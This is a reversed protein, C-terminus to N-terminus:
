TLTWHLIDNVVHIIMRCLERHNEVMMSEHSNHMNYEVWSRWNGTLLGITKRGQRLQSNNSLSPQQGSEGGERGTNTAKNEGM